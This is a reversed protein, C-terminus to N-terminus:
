NRIEVLYRITMQNIDYVIIEDNITGAKGAEVFCHWIDKGEKQITKLCLSSDSRTAYFPKGLAVDFFAVFGCNENEKTWYGNLSTYGVSKQFGGTPKDPNGFYCGDGYASGNYGAGAPRIRLGMKIINFWNQNRSGHCLLRINNINNEKVFNNFNSETETNIVKWANYFKHAQNGMAKKIKDIDEQTVDEMQIGMKELMNEKVEETSSNFKLGISPKYVQGAMTDLTSQEYALIKEYSEKDGALFDSVSNMKRPIITFLNILNKNFDEVSLTDKQKAMKDLLKQAKDVTTQTVANSTVKYSKSIANNAYLYLRKIISRVSKNTILSFEDKESEPEVVSNKIIEQMSDTIDQYGKKLKSNILSDYKSLPYVKSATSGGVRGWEAKFTGDGLPTINYFKNHGQVGFEGDVCILYRPLNKM